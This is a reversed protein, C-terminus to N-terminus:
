ECFEKLSKLAGTVTSKQLVPGIIPVNKRLFMEASVETEDGTLRNLRYTEEMQFPGFRLFSSLVSEHEVALPQDYLIARFPGLRYRWRVTRGPQPYGDVSDIPGILDKNWAAVERPVTLAQWIRSIPAYIRISEQYRNM